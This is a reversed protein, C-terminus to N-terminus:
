SSDESVASRIVHRVVFRGARVGTFAELIVSSPPAKSEASEHRTTTVAGAADTLIVLFGRLVARDLSSGSYKHSAM